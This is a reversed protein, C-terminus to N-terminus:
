GVARRYARTGRKIADGVGEKSHEVVGLVADRVTEGYEKVHAAGDVAAGTIRARTRRGSYPAFLLGVTAGMGFGILFVCAHSREM